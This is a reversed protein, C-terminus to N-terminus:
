TLLTRGCSIVYIGHIYTCTELPSGSIVFDGNGRLPGKLSPAVRMLSRCNETKKKKKPPPNKALSTESPDSLDQDHNAVGQV